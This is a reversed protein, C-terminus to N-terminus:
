THKEVEWTMSCSAKVEWSLATSGISRWLVRSIFTLAMLEAWAMICSWQMEHKASVAHKRLVIVSLDRHVSRYIMCSIGVCRNKVTIPTFAPLFLPVWDYHCFQVLSLSRQKTEHCNWLWPRKFVWEANMWLSLVKNMEPFIWKGKLPNYLWFSWCEDSSSFM